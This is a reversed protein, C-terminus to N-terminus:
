GLLKGGHAPWGVFEFSFEHTVETDSLSFLWLSLFSFILTLRFLGIQVEDVVSGALCSRSSRSPERMSPCSDQDMCVCLTKSTWVLGKERFHSLLALASMWPQEALITLSLSLTRWGHSLDVALPPGQSTMSTFTVWTCESLTEMPLGMGCHDMDIITWSPFALYISQNAPATVFHYRDALWEIGQRRNKWSLAPMFATCGKLAQPKENPACLGGGNAMRSEMYHAYYCSVSTLLCPSGWSLNM